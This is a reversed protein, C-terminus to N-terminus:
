EHGWTGPKTAHAETMAIGKFEKMAESPRLGVDPSDIRTPHVIADRRDIRELLARVARLEALLEDYVTM